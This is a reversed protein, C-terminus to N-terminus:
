DVSAAKARSATVSVPLPGFGGVRRRNASIGFETRATVRPSGDVSHNAGGGGPKPKGRGANGYLQWELEAIRDAAERLARAAQLMDPGIYPWGEAEIALKEAIARMEDPTM